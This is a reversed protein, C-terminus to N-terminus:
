IAYKEMIARFDALMDVLDAKPRYYTFNATINIEVEGDGHDKIINWDVGSM